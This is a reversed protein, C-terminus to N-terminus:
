GRDAAPARPTLGLEYALCTLDARKRWGTKQQIRDLHSRVSSVSIYLTAGIEKDSAGGAVLAIM